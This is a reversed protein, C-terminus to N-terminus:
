RGPACPNLLERLRQKGRSTASKVAGVSVGLTRATTAEDLDFWYRLVIAARQAYPLLRLAAIVEDRDDVRNTLDPSARDLEPLGVAEYRASGRGRDRCANVVIQRAYAVPDHLRSWRVFVKELSLQAIDEAAPRDGILAVGFRVLSSAHSTAFSVFAEDRQDGM